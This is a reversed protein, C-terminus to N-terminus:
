LLPLNLFLMMVEFRLQMGKDVSDVEIQLCISKKFKPAYNTFKPIKKKVYNLLNCTRSTAWYAVNVVM